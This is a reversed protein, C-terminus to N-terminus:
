SCDELTCCVQLIPLATNYRWRLTGDGFWEARAAHRGHTNIPNPVMNCSRLMTNNNGQQPAGPYAGTERSTSLRTLVRPGM